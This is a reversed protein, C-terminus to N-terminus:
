QRLIQLIMSVSMLKRFRIWLPGLLGAMGAATTKIASKRHIKM